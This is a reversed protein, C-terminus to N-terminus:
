LYWSLTMKKKADTLQYIVGFGCQMCVYSTINEAFVDIM